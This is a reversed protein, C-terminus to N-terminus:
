FMYMCINTSVRIRFRWMESRIINWFVDQRASHYIVSSVNSLPKNEGELLLKEKLKYVSLVCKLM